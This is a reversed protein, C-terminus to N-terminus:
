SPEAKLPAITASAPVTSTNDINPVQSWDTPPRVRRRYQTRQQPAPSGEVFAPYQKEIVTTGGGGGSSIGEVGASSLVIKLGYAFFGIGVAIGLIHFLRPGWKTPDFFNDINQFTQTLGGAAGAKVAATGTAAGIAAITAPTWKKGVFGQMVERFSNVAFLTAAPDGSDFWGADRLKTTIEEVDSQTLTHGEEFSVTPVGNKYWAGLQQPNAYGPSQSISGSGGSGDDLNAGTGESFGKRSIAQQTLSRYVGLYTTGSTGWPVHKLAAGLAAWDSAQFALKIPKYIPRNIAAAWADAGATTGAYNAFHLGIGDFKHYNSGSTTYNLPNNNYVVIDQSGSRHSESMFWAALMRRSINNNPLGARKLYLAALDYANYTHPSLNYGSM